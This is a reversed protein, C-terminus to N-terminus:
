QPEGQIGGTTLAGHQLDCSTMVSDQHVRVPMTSGIGFSARHSCEARSWPCSPRM